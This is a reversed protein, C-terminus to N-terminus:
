LEENIPSEVSTVEKIKLANRKKWILYFSLLGLGSGIFAFAIILPMLQTNTQQTQIPTPSLIESGTTNQDIENNVEPTPTPTRSIRPSPTKSPTIVRTPTSTPRSTATPAPTHTSTPNPTSTPAQTPTNTIAPCSSGNSANKTQSSCQTWTGGGDVSRGYSVEETTSSYTHSSEVSGSSSLLRVSDGSNDLSIGTTSKEFVLFGSPQIKTGAPITYPNSDGESDDVRWGSLDVESGDSNFIEIWEGNEPSGGSPNPLYENLVVEAYVTSNFASLCFISIVFVLRYFYSVM